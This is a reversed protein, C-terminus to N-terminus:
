NDKKRFINGIRYLVRGAFNHNRVSVVEGLLQIKMAVEIKDTNPGIIIRQTEFGATSFEVTDGQKVEVSFTGEIDTQIPAITSGVINVFVGYFGLGM